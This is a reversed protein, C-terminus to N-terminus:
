ISRSGRRPHPRLFPAPHAMSPVADPSLSPTIAHIAPFQQDCIIRLHVTGHQGIHQIVIELDDLSHVAM